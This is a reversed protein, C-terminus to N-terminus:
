LGNELEELYGLARLRERDDHSLREVVARRASLTEGLERIRERHASAIEPHAAAVDLREGPDAELDFLHFADDTRSQTSKFRGRRYTRYDKESWYAEDPSLETQGPATGGALSVLIAHLDQTRLFAAPDRRIGPAVILPVAVLEQFSPNGRHLDMGPLAHREGMREGHDSTLVVAAGDRLGRAELGDLLAGVAADVDRVARAYREPDAGGWDHVDMYHVYLFFRDHPRRDLAALAARNVLDASRTQPANPLKLLALAGADPPKEGVEVWDDFGREFGSPAYLFQNSAIGITAFGQERMREALTPVAPPVCLDHNTEAFRFLGCWTASNWFLPRQARHFELSPTRGTFLAGMSMSTQHYAAAYDRFVQGRAALADIRPTANSSGYCGLADRRLTDVVILVVREPATAPGGSPGGCACVWAAVAVCALWRCRSNV